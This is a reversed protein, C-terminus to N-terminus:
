LLHWCQFKMFNTWTSVIEFWFMKYRVQERFEDGGLAAYIHWYVLDAYNWTIAQGRVQVLAPKNEIPSKPAFKLSIWISIRDNENFYHM